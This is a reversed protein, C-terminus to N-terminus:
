RLSRPARRRLGALALGALATGALGVGTPEALLSGVATFEVSSAPTTLVISDVFAGLPVGLADLDVFAARIDWALSNSDVVSWSSTPVALYPGGAALSLLFPDTDSFMEFVVLDPGPINALAGHDFGLQIFSGFTSDVHREFDAGLMADAVSASQPFTRDPPLNHAILSSAFAHDAFEIGGVVIRAQAGPPGLMLALTLLGIAWPARAARDGTRYTM